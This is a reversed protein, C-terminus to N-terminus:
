EPFPQSWPSTHSISAGDSPSRTQKWYTILAGSHNHTNRLSETLHKNRKESLSVIFAFSTFVGYHGHHSRWHGCANLWATRATHYGLKYKICGTTLIRSFQGKESTRQNQKGLVSWTVIGLLNSGKDPENFLSRTLMFIVGKPITVHMIRIPFGFDVLSSSGDISWWIFAVHQKFEANRVPTRIWLVNLVHFRQDYFYISSWSFNFFFLLNFLLPVFYHSRPKLLVQGRDLISLFPGCIIHKNEKWFRSEMNGWFNLLENNVKQSHIWCKTYRKKM